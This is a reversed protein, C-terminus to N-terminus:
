QRSVPQHAPAWFLPRRITRSRACNPPTSCRATIGVRPFGVTVKTVASLCKMAWGQSSQRPGTSAPVRSLTNPFTDSASCGALDLVSVGQEAETGTSRLSLSEEDSAFYAGAEERFSNVYTFVGRMSALLILSLRGCALPRQRLRPIGTAQGYGARPRLRVVYGPGLPIGRYTSSWTSCDSCPPLEAAKLDLSCCAPSGLCCREDRRRPSLPHLRPAAPIILLSLLVLLLSSFLIWMLADGSTRCWSSEDARRSCRRPPSARPPPRDRAVRLPHGDPSVTRIKSAM